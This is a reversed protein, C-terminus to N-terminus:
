SEILRFGKSESIQQGRRVSKSIAPISLGLQRAMNAMSVGLERVAWYCFLGRADVIRPYKGKAWVDEPQVGMLESVRLAIKNLDIGKARLAHRKELAERAEELVQSVFDGDGLIREDSRQYAKERRLAKLAEWGGASRILGGGALEPRRGQEIGKEVFSRYSQRASSIRKGFMILIGDIEQWANKMTGILFSHGSYPYCDLEKLHRVLGARLPNLHIYRVLELLYADEQCLVSKFRNQFLHGTRRHHRNYWIAYGTLLRRMVTSIPTNGTRLLLHFHNPMLSWAYCTTKTDSLIDSLRQIFQERDADSEFIKKREIGRVMIHHVAGAADIRSGRPM